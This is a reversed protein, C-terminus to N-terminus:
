RTRSKRDLASGPSVRKRPYGSAAPEVTEEVGAFLDVIKVGPTQAVLHLSALTINM